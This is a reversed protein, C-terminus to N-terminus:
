TSSSKPFSKPPTFLTENDEDDSLILVVEQEVIKAAAKIANQERRKARIVEEELASCRIKGAIANYMSVRGAINASIKPSLPTEALENADKLKKLTDELKATEDSLQRVIKIANSADIEPEDLFRKSPSKLEGFSHM